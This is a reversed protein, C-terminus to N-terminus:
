LQGPALIVKLGRKAHEFAEAFQELPYIGAVLPKVDIRRADLLEIGRDFPGGRSGSVTIEDVGLPSLNVATEGDCAAKVVPRGRVGALRSATWVGAASG